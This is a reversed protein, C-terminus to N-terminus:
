LAEQYIPEKSTRFLLSTLTQKAIALKETDTGHCALATTAATRIALEALNPHRDLMRVVGLAERTAGTFTEEYIADIEKIEKGEYYYAFDGKLANLRDELFTAQNRFFTVVDNYKYTNDDIPVKPEQAKILMEEVSIGQGNNGTELLLNFVDNVLAPTGEMAVSNIDATALILKLIDKKGERINTQIITGNERNVITACIIETVRDCANDSFGIRKMFERTLAASQHEDEGKDGGTGQVLDHGLAAFMSLAYDSDEFKEPFKKRHLSLLKWSRALVNLAHRDDHYARYTEGKPDGYKEHALQLMGLGAEFIEETIIGDPIEHEEILDHITDAHDLLRDLLPENEPTLTEM